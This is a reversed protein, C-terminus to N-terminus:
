FEKEWGTKDTYSVSDDAEDPVNDFNSVDTDNALKPTWPTRKEKKLYGDFDTCEFFAHNRIGGVGEHLSGLRHFPDRVLLETVLARCMPNYPQSKDYSKAPFVLSGKIINRCTIVQDFRRPDYFPTHGVTMEYLLIGFAWYDVAINHGKGLVLEPALYEPTGCLTFSKNEIVKAFGFDVIKPYGKDDILCNEPKMDRYAINKTALYELALFVGVAYFHAHVNAIGDRRSTHLVSFLEGGPIYDLLMYLRREDKFTAHLRLIFPHYCMGMLKKENIVNTQQKQAVIQSKLLTKLAYLQQTPKHRVLAVRGFTGAGLMSIKDLQSYNITGLKNALASALEISRAEAEAALTDGFSKKIKVFTERDLTFIEMDSTSTITAARTDDGLLAMEGFYQGADLKSVIKGQASVDAEGSKIVYFMDGNQGESVIKTGKKVIKNKFSSALVTKQADNLKGKFIECNTLVAMNANNDLLARLPGLKRQFNERDLEMVQSSEEAVANAARPEGTILAREGFYDGESLSHNSIHGEINKIAIRGSRIIYFIDGPSGKSFITTGKTYSKIQVADVISDVQKSTLGKLLPTKSLFTKIEKDRQQQISATVQRFIKRHLRLLVSKTDCRVTAARPNNYILALDGFIDGEKLKPPTHVGNIIVSLSGEDVLYLYDAKADGEKIVVDGALKEEAEFCEIVVSVAEDSMGSFLFSRALSLRLRDVQTKTKSYSPFDKVNSTSEFKSNYVVQNRRKRISQDPAAESLMISTIAEGDQTRKQDLSVSPKSQLCGM